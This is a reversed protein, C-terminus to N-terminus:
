GQKPIEGGRALRELETVACTATRLRGLVITFMQAPVPERRGIQGIAKLGADAAATNEVAAALLEDHSMSM